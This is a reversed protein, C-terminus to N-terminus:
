LIDKKKLYWWILLCSAIAIIGIAVVVSIFAPFSAELNNRLNMGYIGTVVALLSFVATIFTAILDFRIILNRRNSLKLGLFEQTDEINERLDEVRHNIEEAPESFHEIVSTLESFDEETALEKSLYFSKMEEENELIDLLEEEMEEVGTAFKSLKKKLTLLKELHKETFNKQIQGLLREVDKEFTEYEFRIKEFRYFLATELVLFEFPTQKKDSQISENLLPLFKEEVEQNLVNFVYVEKAGIILKLIGFNVIIAENRPSITVLQRLTFVPRLDRTHISLKQAIAKREVDDKSINGKTDVIFCKM